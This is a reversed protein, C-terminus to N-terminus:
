LCNLGLDPGVSRRVQDPDLSKSMRITNRFSNEFFIIKFFFDASSLRCFFYAFNGLLCLTVITVNESLVHHTTKKPILLVVVM